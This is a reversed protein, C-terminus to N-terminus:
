EDGMRYMEPDALLEEITPERRLSSEDQENVRLVSEGVRVVEVRLPASDGRDVEVEARSAEVGSVEVARDAESVVGREVDVINGETLLLAERSQARSIQAKVRNLGAELSKLDSTNINSLPDVNEIQTRQDVRSHIALKQVVAGKVRLDLMEFIKIKSAVLSTNVTEYEKGNKDRTKKSIPTRLIEELEDLGIFLLTEMKKLYRPPPTVIFALKLPQKLVNHLWYDRTCVGRTVAGSMMKGGGRQARDYEAWFSIRLMNDEPDPDVMRRLKQESIKFLEAHSKELRELISVMEGWIINILSRPENKDFLPIESDPMGDDGHRPIGQIETM